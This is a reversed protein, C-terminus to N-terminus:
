RDRPSAHGPAAANGAQSNPEVPRRTCIKYTGSALPNERIGLRHGIEWGLNPFPGSIEWAPLGSKGADVCLPSLDMPAV